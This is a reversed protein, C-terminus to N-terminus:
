SYGFYGPNLSIERCKLGVKGLVASGRRIKGRTKWPVSFVLFTHNVTKKILPKAEM